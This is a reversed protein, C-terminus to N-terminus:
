GPVGIDDIYLYGPRSDNANNKHIMELEVLKADSSGNEEAKNDTETKSSTIANYSM